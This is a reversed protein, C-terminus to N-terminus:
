QKIPRTLYKRTLDDAIELFYHYQKKLEKHNQQKIKEKEIPKLNKELEKSFTTEIGTEEKYSERLSHIVDEITLSIPLCRKITIKNKLFFKQACIQYTYGEAESWDNHLVGFQYSFELLKSTLELFFRTLSIFFNSQWKILCKKWIPLSIWKQFIDSIFFETAEKPSKQNVSGRYIPYYSKRIRM